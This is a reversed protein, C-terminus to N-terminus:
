RRAGGYPYLDVLEASENARNTPYFLRCWPRGPDTTVPPIQGYSGTWYGGAYSYYREAGCDQVGTSCRPRGSADFGDMYQGAPCRHAPNGVTCGANLGFFSCIQDRQNAHGTAALQAALFDASSIRDKGWCQNINVGARNVAIKFNKTVVPPGSAGPPLGLTIQLNVVNFNSAPPSAITRSIRMDNIRLNGFQGGINLTTVGINVGTIAGVKSKGALATSCTNDASLVDRMTATLADVEANSDLSTDAALLNQSIQNTGYALIGMLVVAIMVGVLNTEGKESLLLNLNPM